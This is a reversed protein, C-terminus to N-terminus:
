AALPYDEAGFMIHLLLYVADDTDVKTDGNFDLNTGDPVPYDETGFMVSLLLYVADDTTLTENGDLDGPIAQVAFHITANLLEENDSGIAIAGWQVRSGGYYVDTLGSCGSFASAGIATVSGPITVETLNGCGIFAHDGIATVGDKIVVTKILARKTYWPVAPGSEYDKMAGTGAISLVGTKDLGWIVNEGCTGNTCAAILDGFSITGDSAASVGVPLLILMLSLLTAVTALFKRLKM